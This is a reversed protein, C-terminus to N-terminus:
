ESSAISSNLTQNPIIPNDLWQGSGFAHNNLYYMSCNAKIEALKMNIQTQQDMGLRYANILLVTILVMQIINIIEGRTLSIGFPLETYVVIDTNLTMKEKKM